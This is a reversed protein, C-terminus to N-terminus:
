FDLSGLRGIHPGVRVTPGDVGLTLETGSANQRKKVYGLAVPGDLGLFASTIFGVNKPGSLLPTGPSPASDVGALDLRVLRRKPQGISDIRCIVEQGIYCGKTFSIALNSLGAELPINDGHFDIGHRPLGAAIRAADLIERGPRPLDGLAALVSEVDTTQMWVAYDDGTAGEIRLIRVTAGGLETEAHNFLGPEPLTGGAAQVATGADTGAILWLATGEPAEFYVKESILYKDLGEVFAEAAGPELLALLSGTKRDDDIVFIRVDAVTKGRITNFTLWRGEGVALNKVDNSLMAHLFRVRDRGTIILRDYDSLDFLVAGATLPSLDIPGAEATLRAQDLVAPLAHEQLKDLTSMSM